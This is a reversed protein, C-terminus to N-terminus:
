SAEDKFHDSEHHTLPGEDIVVKDTQGLMQKGLWIQMTVNGKEANQWQYRRLTSRGMDRGKKITEAFRRELTDVSAEVVASIENMTCGISALKLVLNDDIIKKPRAM